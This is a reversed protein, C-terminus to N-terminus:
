MIALCTQSKPACMYVCDLVLFDNIEAIHYVNVYDQAELLYIARISYKDKLSLAFVKKLYKIALNSGEHKQQWNLSVCFGDSRQYLSHRNKSGHSLFWHCETQMKLCFSLRHRSMSKKKNLFSFSRSMNQSISGKRCFSM